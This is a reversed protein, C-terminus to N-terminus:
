LGLREALGPNKPGVKWVFADLAYHVAQPLALLPVLLALSLPGPSIDWAGFFRPHDHWVLADWLGEELFAVVVLAGYFTPAGLRFVAAVAGREGTFRRAGYRHVLVFYPVGHILVNTVTFVYDSDFAVIGLWWCVATSAVVLHKGWPVFGRMSSRLARAVYALMIAMYVVLAVRAVLPPLGGAFDSAIFWHFHRPLSAHWAILPYLTAAYIAAADILRGARDTEGGRRRYLMVWGYQQRVFHFVAAYALVRWFLAPSQLHLAVGALWALVPVGLYLAPRRRIEAPDAYVRYATSWVHAVDVGVVALLWLGPPTDASAAGTVLGAAVLATSALAPAGFALLDTRRSFLWPRATM